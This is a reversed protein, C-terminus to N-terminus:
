GGKMFDFDIHRKLAWIGPLNLAIGWKEAIARRRGLSVLKLYDKQPRYQILPQNAALRIIQDALV